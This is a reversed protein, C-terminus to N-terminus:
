ELWAQFSCALKQRKFGKQSARKLGHLGSLGWKFGKSGSSGQVRFRCGEVADHAEGRTASWM